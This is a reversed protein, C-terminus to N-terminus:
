AKHQRLPNTRTVLSLPQSQTLACQSSLVSQRISTAPALVPPLPFPGSLLPPTKSSSSSMRPPFPPHSSSQSPTPPGSAKTNRAFSHSHSLSQARPPTDKNPRHPKTTLSLPQVQETYTVAPERPSPSLRHVTHTPAPAAPFALATTPTAPSDLSSAPSAQSLHTHTQYIHTHPKAQTRSPLCSKKPQPAVREVPVESRSGNRVNDRKRKKRKGYNDRASWGPYLQSHLQREQRALEYYKAQEEASLSHWRRGLIQNIAASEKLTCESVVNARQEKMYLMFANLPKKIHPKKEEAEEKQARPVTNGHQSSDRPEQKIATSVIAPHPISSRSAPVLHPSFSSSLLSSMSANVTLAAPHSPRFGGAASPYMSQGQMGGQEREQTHGSNADRLESPLEKEWIKLFVAHIRYLLEPGGEKLIEAPIEDPGAAKNNKISRIADQVQNLLEQFREKWRTNISENDKLLEQRNKSCLPNLSHNSPGYVVKTASFFGRTDGSDALQQM